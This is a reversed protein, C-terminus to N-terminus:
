EPKVLEMERFRVEKLGFAWGQRLDKIYIRCLYTYQTIDAECLQTIVELIRVKTGPEKQGELKSGIITAWDGVKFKAKRM